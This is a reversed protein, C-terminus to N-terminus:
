TKTEKFCDIYRTAAKNLEEVFAELGIGPQFIQPAARIFPLMEQMAGMIEGPYQILKVAAKRLDNFFAEAGTGHRVVQPCAEYFPLLWGAWAKINKVPTSEQETM